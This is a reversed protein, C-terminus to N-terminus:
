NRIIIVEEGKSVRDGEKTLIKKVEGDYPAYLTTEMKMASLVIVGQGKKVKDGVKVLISIVTAPIPPTIDKPQNTLNKNKKKRIISDQEQVLYTINNLIIEKNDINENVYINHSKGNITIYINNDDIQIYSVDYLKDKISIKLKNKKISEIKASILDNDIKLQYEM